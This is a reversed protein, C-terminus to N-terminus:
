QVVPNPRDPPFPFAKAENFGRHASILQSLPAPVLLVFPLALCPPAPLTDSLLTPATAAAPLTSVKTDNGAAPGDSQRRHMPWTLPAARIAAAVPGPTGLTCSRESVLPATAQQMSTAATPGKSRPLPQSPPPQPPRLRGPHHRPCPQAGHHQARFTRLAPGVPASPATFGGSGVMSCRKLAWAMGIDRHLGQAASCARTGRRGRRHM